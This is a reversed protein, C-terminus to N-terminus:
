PSVLGLRSLPAYSRTLGSQQEVTTSIELQRCESIAVRFQAEIEQGVERCGVDSDRVRFLPSWINQALSLVIEVGRRRM